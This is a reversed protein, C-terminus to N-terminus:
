NKIVHLYRDINKMLQRIGEEPKLVITLDFLSSYSLRQAGVKFKARSQTVLHQLVVNDDASMDILIDFQEEVFNSVATSKPSLRLNLDKKTIYDFELSPNVDLPLEKEDVYGLALVKIKYERLFKVYRKVLVIAEQSSADYVIGLRKANKINIALVEREPSKERKLLFRALKIQIDNIYGLSFVKRLSLLILCDKILNAGKKTTM